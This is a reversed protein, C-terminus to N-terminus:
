VWTEQMAPPNKVESGGPVGRVVILTLYYQFRGKLNASGHQSKIFLLVGLLHSIPQIIDGRGFNRGVQSTKKRYNFYIPKGPPGTPSQVEWALPALKIGPRPVLDWTCPLAALFLLITSKYHNLYVAFHNMPTNYIYM